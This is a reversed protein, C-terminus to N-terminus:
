IQSFVILLFIQFVLSTRGHILDRGSKREFHSYVKNKQEYAATQAEQKQLQTMEEKPKSTEGSNKKKPRGKNHKKPPM